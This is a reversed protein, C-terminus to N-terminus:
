RREGAFDTPVFIIKKRSPNRWGEANLEAAVNVTFAAHPSTM